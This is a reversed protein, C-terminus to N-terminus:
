SKGTSKFWYARLSIQFLPSFEFKNVDSYGRTLGFPTVTGVHKVIGASISIPISIRNTLLIEFGLGLHINKSNMKVLKDDYFQNIPTNGGLPPTGNNQFYNRWQFNFCTFFHSKRKTLNVFHYKIGFSPGIVSYYKNRLNFGSVNNQNYGFDLEFNSYVMNVNLGRSLNAFNEFANFYSFQGELGFNIPKQSYGTNLILLFIITFYLKMRTSALRVSIYTTATQSSSEQRAAGSNNRATFESILVSVAIIMYKKNAM